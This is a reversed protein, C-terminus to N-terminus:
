LALGHQLAQPQRNAAMGSGLPKEPASPSPKEEPPPPFVKGRIEPPIQYFFDEFARDFDNAFDENELSALQEAEMFFASANIGLELLKFVVEDANATLPIRHATTPTLITQPFPNM